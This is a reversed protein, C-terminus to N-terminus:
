PRDYKAGLAKAEAVYQAILDSFTIEGRGVKRLNEREEETMHLGEVELASAAENIHIEMQQATM